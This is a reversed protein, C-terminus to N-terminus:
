ATQPKVCYYVDESEALGYRGLDQEGLDRVFGDVSVAFGAGTLRDKYDAGYQRVHNHQGFLRKRDARSIVAPDEFTEGAALPVQLIAWGGPKLVRYLEAMARRDDPVHELVHSCYIVDFTQGPFRLDTIDMKLM